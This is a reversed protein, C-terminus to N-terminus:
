YISLGLYYECRPKYDENVPYRYNDRLVEERTLPHRYISDYLIYGQKYQPFRSFLEYKYATDEVLPKESAISFKKYHQVYSFVSSVTKPMVHYEDMAVMFIGDPTLHQKILHYFERSFLNNSYSTTARLPDIFVIDYKKDTNYLFKRGDAIILNVDPDNLFPKLMDIQSLNDILSQSLEVVTVRPKPSAKLVTEVFTGTGFGIILVDRIDKKYSLAQLAKYSYHSSPRNGHPMGNIYTVLNDKYYYTVDVGDLGESILKNENVDFRKAPHIAGYLESRSPFLIYTFFVLVLLAAIKFVPTFIKKESKIFIYFCLGVVVFLMLSRETGLVDLLLLGTILGGAVNGLVNFFYVRGVTSGEKTNRYALSTILPFSAGMFFTPVLIFLSPWIFVDVMFFVDRFFERASNTSPLKIEPHLMQGYVYTNVTNFFEVERVLYYYVVVPVLVSIAILFQLLFFLNKRNILTHRNLYRNMYYSGLAIGILYIFLITSFAYPSSKVFIGIFRFWVIEYGIALFGTIFIISYLRLNSSFYQRNVPKDATPYEQKPDSDAAKQLLRGKNALILFAILINIAAAVYVSTDLGWFSILFYSAFFAGAAAGMTNIFYLYSLSAFFNNVVDNFIKTLLPLTIGMLFTPLGLFLFMYVFSVSVSSGATTKGLLALFPISISGFLGILLEICFYLEIRKSIRDTFYGGIIAGLGLGLMYVSVILTTSINEVSYYLTLIRQWAVQYILSSFGSAFFILALVKLGTKSKM